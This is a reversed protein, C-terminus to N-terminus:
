YPCLLNMLNMIMHNMHHKLMPMNECYHYSCLGSLQMLLQLSKKEYWVMSREYMAPSVPCM